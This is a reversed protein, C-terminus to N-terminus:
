SNSQAKSSPKKDDNNKKANAPESFKQSSQQLVQLHVSAKDMGSRDIQLAGQGTNAGDAPCNEQCAPQNNMQSQSVVFEQSFAVSAIATLTIGLSIKKMNM